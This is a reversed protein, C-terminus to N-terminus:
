RRYLVDTLEFIWPLPISETPPTSFHSRTCDQGNVPCEETTQWFMPASIDENISIEDDPSYKFDDSDTAKAYLAQWDSTTPAFFRDEINSLDRAQIGPADVITDWYGRVNSYDIRISLNDSDRRVLSMDYDFSFDYVKSSPDRKERVHAPVDQNASIEMSIARSFTNQACNDPMELITGEIGGIMVQFCGKLDDSLCVVRATRVANDPLDLVDKPCDLFTLPEPQGSRKKLNAVTSSDGAILVFGFASQSPDMSDAQGGFNILGYKPSPDDPLDEKPFLYKLDVLDFADDSGYKANGTIARLADLNNNDLDIAWVM